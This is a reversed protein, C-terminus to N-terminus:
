GGVLRALRFLLLLLLCLVLARWILGLTSQMTELVADEGRPTAEARDTMGGTLEGSMALRVGLAGAGSALVIGAGKEQPNDQGKVRQSRWCYMADEFNGVIAFAAATLRLPLWDILAFAQQAFRGFRGADVAGGWEDAFVAAARYLVAGSVGPLVIFFFLVAFLHRHAAILLQEIAVRAIERSTLDDCPRECWATLLSRARDTDDKRLALQIDSYIQSFHGFGMSLYLVLVVFVWALLSSISTLLRHIGGAVLVLGGVGIGWALLGHSREGGNLRSELLRALRSLPGHVAQPYQLPRLQEILLVILLSFLGM